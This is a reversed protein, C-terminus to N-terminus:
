HICVTLPNCMHIKLRTIDEFFSNKRSTSIPQPMTCTVKISCNQSVCLHCCVQRLEYCCFSTRSKTINIICVVQENKLVFSLHSVSKLAAQICADMTHHILISSHITSYVTSSDRAAYSALYSAQSDTHFNM